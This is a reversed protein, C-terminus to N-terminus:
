RNVQGIVLLGLARGGHGTSDRSDADAFPRIWVAPRKSDALAVFALSRGDPSVAFDALDCMTPTSITFRYLPAAPHQRSGRPWLVAIVMCAAALAITLAWVLRGGIRHGSHPAHEALPEDLGQLAVRAEGIDRLRTRPDRNSAGRWYSDCGRRCRRLFATWTSTM